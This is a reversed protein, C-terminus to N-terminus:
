PQPSKVELVDSAPIAHILLYIRYYLTKLYNAVQQRRVLVKSIIVLKGGCDVLNICLEHLGGSNREGTLLFLRREGIPYAFKFILQSFNFSKFGLYLSIPKM